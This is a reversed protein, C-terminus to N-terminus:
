YYNDVRFSYNQQLNLIKAPHLDSFLKTPSNFYYRAQYCNDIKIFKNKV